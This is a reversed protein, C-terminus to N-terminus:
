TVQVSTKCRQLSYRVFTGCVLMQLALSFALGITVPRQSLSDIALVPAPLFAPWIYLLGLAACILPEVDSVM